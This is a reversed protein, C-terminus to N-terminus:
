KKKLCVISERLYNKSEITEFYQQSSTIIFRDVEIKDVEFGIKQAFKALLLDTPFVVGGYSSNGIVIACFGNNKLSKYIKTLLEFMQSFYMELMKPINKNWLEKTALEDLLKELEPLTLKQELHKNSFANLHSRVSSQRLERLDEYEKVFDGFWLELKYIETYDFSNAYPPSFIVGNVSEKQIYSDLNLCSDNIIECNFEFDKSVLDREINRFNEKLIEEALFANDIITRASTRKKLGNGAKKYLSVM